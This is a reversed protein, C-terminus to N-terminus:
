NDLEWEWHTDAVDFSVADGAADDPVDLIVAASYSKKAALTGDEHHCARAAPTNAPLVTKGDDGVYRWDEDLVVGPLRNQPDDYTHVTLNATVFRGNTPQTPQDCTTNQFHDVTLDLLPSGDQNIVWVKDGVARQPSPAAEMTSPVVTPHGAGVAQADPEDDNNGCAAVGVFAVAALIAVAFRTM